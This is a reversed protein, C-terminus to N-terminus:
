IKKLVIKENMKLYVKNFFEKLEEYYEPNFIPTFISLNSSIQINDGNKAIYFTFKALGDSMQLNIQTPLSEIEYGQPIVYHMTYNDVMPTMFDVPYTRKEAKFPNENLKFFMFPNFYIKNSIIESANTYKFKIVKNVNLDVDKKNEIKYDIVEIGTYDKEFKELYTEDTLNAYDRRFIYAGRQILSQNLTGEVNGENTITGSITNNEKAFNSPSLNVQSSSGNNRVIIGLYNLARDPLMDIQLYPDTIDLLLVKNELEVGCVVYNFASISPFIPIARSRTSLLVPNADVGSSRLMSVLMLNLDAVNGTKEEYIKSLKKSTKYGYNENWKLKSKLFNFIANIKDQTSSNNIALKNLDNSYYDTLDIQKGFEDEEYIKKVVDEWTESILQFPKNKFQISALEFELSSLYNKYDNSFPEEEFAPVNILSMKVINDIYNIEEYEITSTPGQRTSLSAGTRVKNSLTIKKDKKEKIIEPNLGGRFHNNYVYFEPVEFVYESYDVPITSQFEWKNINQFYKSKIVYKYEVISGVKVNPMSISIKRWNENINEKFNGDSNLKTKEIKGNVLNYTIAKSFNITEDSEGKYLAIEFNAADLGEKKYIKMKVEVETYLSFGDSGYDFYSRGKKFLYAAVASTDQSHKTQKLEEITVTGLERKQACLLSPLFIILLLLKKM